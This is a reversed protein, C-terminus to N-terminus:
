SGMEYDEDKSPNQGLFPYQELDLVTGSFPRSEDSLWFAVVRAVESPCTMNGTPVVGRDLKDPWGEPLGDQLKREYETESLVWGLNLHTFRIGQKSYIGALNRSMTQLAGKSVSYASLIGEGGHANISGINVVSGKAEKLHKSAAQCILFPARVNIAMTQDFMEANTGEFSARTIIAANNVVSDLRGFREVTESVIRGPADPSELDGAIGFANSGLEEAVSEVATPDLGHIAVQAGESLCREAIARGIGTNSGTVLIVKSVLRNNM